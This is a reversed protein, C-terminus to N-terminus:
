IAAGTLKAWIAAAYGGGTTCIYIDAGYYSMEGTSAATGNVGGALDQAALATVTGTGDDTSKNAAGVVAAATADNNVCDIVDQATANIAASGYSLTINVVGSTVVVSCAGTDEGPDLLAVDIANGLTGGYCTTNATFTIDNNDGALTTSYTATVHSVPASAYPDVVVKDCVVNGTTVYDDSRPYWGAGAMGVTLLPLILGLLLVIIFLRGKIM